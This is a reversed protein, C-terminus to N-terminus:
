DKKEDTSTDKNTEKSDSSTDDTKNSDDKSTSDSKSESDSQSSSSDTTSKTDDDKTTKDDTTKDDTKSTNDKSDKGTTSTKDDKTTKEDTKKTEAIKKVVNISFSSFNSLLTSANVSQSLITGDVDSSNTSQIEVINITKGNNSAWNVAVSKDKGVFSPMLQYSTSKGYENQGIVKLEYTENSSFSFTKIIEPNELGLNVKMAKVVAALSSDYYIYDYLVMKMGEDYIMAGYGNLFLQQMKFQNLDDDSKLLIQKGVEYFELIQSRTFNTDMSSGIVDLINVVQQVSKINTLQNMIGEIVIQQDFGRQLDGTKLTKRHRAFALAQEGNLHQYGKQLCIEYEEFRRESDQECFTFPVDIDIGGIADILGVVGKFNITVYYDIDIGTFNEITREVCSEGYWASHTIKNKIHNRFCMIPVFTDRPISLVTANLTKPNFTVLILADGNAAGNKVEQLTSDVGMILVTFPETVSLKASKENTQKEMEKEKSYIIKTENAINEYKDITNYLVTYNTMIFIADIKKDYLDDMMTYFDEYKVLNDDSVNNEKIIDQAIVYADISTDDDIIGIKKDKIDDISKLSSDKLTVISTSYVIKNSTINDLTDSAKKVIKSVYLEGFSLISLIILIIILGIKKNKMKLFLSVIILIANIAIIGIIAWKRINNEIGDFLTIGHVLKICSYISIIVVIITMILFVINIKKKSRKKRM